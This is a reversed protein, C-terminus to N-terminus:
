QNEAIRFVAVPMSVVIYVAVVLVCIAIVRAVVIWRGGGERTGLMLGKNISCGISEGVEEAGLDELDNEVVRGSCM